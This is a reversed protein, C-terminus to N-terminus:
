GGEFQAVVAERERHLALYKDVTRISLSQEDAVIAKAESKQRGEDILESFRDVARRVKWHGAAIEPRGVEGGIDGRALEALREIMDALVNREADDLPRSADRLIAAMETADGQLAQWQAASFTTDISKM